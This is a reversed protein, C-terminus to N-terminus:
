VGTIRPTGMPHAPLGRPATGPFPPVASRLTAGVGITHMTTFLLHGTLAAEVSAHITARDRAEGILIITPKRRLANRVAYAFLSGEDHADKPRLHRGVETQFVISSPM